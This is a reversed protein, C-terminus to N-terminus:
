ILHARYAVQIIASPTLINSLLYELNGRNAGTIDPGVNGGVDYMKHCAACTKFSLIRGASANGTEITEATLLQRYRDLLAEKDQDLVEVSGWVDAFQPGVSRQLLRAVYAPVDSKPVDGRRIAETLEHGFNSRSALTAIVDQKEADDLAQYRSLLTTAFSPDDFSAIARIVDRRLAPEDLLSTLNAALEQRRGGALSLLAQCREDINASKDLLTKLISKVAAINGFNQSLELAAKATDGGDKTLLEFTTNWSAPSKLDYRGETADLLGLLMSLRPQGSSTALSDVVIDLQGDDGIRRAIFRSLVPIESAKALRLARDVDELLIPELGFWIMKPLNHDDVDEQHSALSELLSWTVASDVRLAASALYLRVVPSSDVSAMEILQETIETSPNKDECLLQIAWGRIYEEPDSLSVALQEATLNDTVHLGM